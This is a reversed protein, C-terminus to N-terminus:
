LELHSVKYGLAKIETEIKASDGVILVIMNDMELKEKALRNLEDKGIQKIIKAQQETYDPSLNYRQIKRMFGAKQYPTEYDLAQGQSISSRMFALEKDTMGTAQYGEIEKAFEVLAKATVDSRVSASAEFLGQESGGSFYSRAGYTYGKDERLNLNIRSNFAGGLPYNMLYSKFFEGTADFAM